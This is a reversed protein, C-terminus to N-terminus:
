NQPQTTNIMWPTGFRDTAMGFAPSWFTEGFPMTIKGGESLADFIRRAEAPDKVHIGVSFGSVPELYQPPCDNGMLAQDDIQLWAHMIKDPREKAWPNEEGQPADSNTIMAIIKGGLVKAYLEFAERCNGDFNLCSTLQM